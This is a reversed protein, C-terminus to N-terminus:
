LAAAPGSGADTQSDSLPIDGHLRCPSMSAHPPADAPSDPGLPRNAFLAAAPPPPATKIEGDAVLDAIVDVLWRRGILSISVGEARATSALLEYEDDTMRIQVTRTMRKEPPLKPRGMNKM